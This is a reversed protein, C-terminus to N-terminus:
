SLLRLEELCGRQRAALSRYDLQKHRVPKKLKYADAGALFVWAFHTEIARVSRARSRFASPRELFAVKERLTPQTRKM